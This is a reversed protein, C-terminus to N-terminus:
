IRFVCNRVYVDQDTLPPGHDVSPVYETSNEFPTLLFETNISQAPLISFDTSAIQSVIHSTELKVVKVVDRCCGGNKHMGCKDCKDNAPRGIEASSFRDMCYHISLSFGTSVTFYVLLLIAALAKKV